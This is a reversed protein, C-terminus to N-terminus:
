YKEKNPDEWSAYDCKPYNSCGWFQRGKKTRREVVDGASCKPCKIGTPKNITKTYRCKPYTSCALFEGFRGKKIVLESGCKKCKLHAYDSIKALEVKDDNNSDNNKTKEQDEEALNQTNKCEPFNSCALFKGFRGTKIIMPKGCKECIRDSKEETIKKDGLIKEKELLNKSFPKYFEDLVSVWSKKGTAIEDLKDEMKATFEIGIFDEFHEFLLDNVLFGIDLPKFYGSEKIVYGRKQITDIIVAYTSPRGIGFEELAKVLTAESYRKKPETFNQKCDLSLLNVKEAEKMLPLLKDESQDFTYLKLYGPFKVEVGSAKFRNLDKDSVTVQSHSLKAPKAQTSLARRWILNYLKQQDSNLFSSVKDPELAPNTPRIAEHAEQALKSKTKYLQPQPSLLEQYNTQLYSRIGQMAQNSLHVSDTRMYTILGTSGKGTINVGEYLQQALMMTKKASFGLKHAAEQQLTSTTFPAKPSREVEWNKNESISFDNQELTSKLKEAEVQNKISTKELKKGEVEELKAIFEKKEQNNFKGELTWFEEKKFDSIERERLVILHLAPTQVRGASLGSLVKKWLVPSLKYGVIRDLIRRAQQADVLDQNITTQNKLADLVAEKTIEHFSIRSYNKQPKLVALLHWAIAEGERDPDTALIVQGCLAMKEKIAKIIKQAKQPVVYKPTFNKEIDIGLSRKPLDRVHGYSSIIEFDGGLIPQLTKAKTPSEVILLNKPM